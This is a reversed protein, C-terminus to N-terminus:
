TKGEQDLRFHYDAFDMESMIQDSLESQELSLEFNDIESYVTPDDNMRVYPHADNICSVPIETTFTIDTKVIAQNANEVKHDSSIEMKWKVDGQKDYKDAKDNSDKQSKM